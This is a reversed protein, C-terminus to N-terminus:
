EKGVSQNLGRDIEDFVEAVSRGKEGADMAALSDRLAALHEAHTETAPPALNDGLEDDAAVEIRVRAGEPLTPNGDFVIVGNVVTGEITM